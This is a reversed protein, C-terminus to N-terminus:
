AKRRWWGLCEKAYCHHTAVAAKNELDMTSEKQQDEMAQVKTTDPHNFIAHHCEIHIEYVDKHRIWWPFLNHFNRIREWCNMQRFKTRQLPSKNWWTIFSNTTLIYFEHLYKQNICEFLCRSSKAGLFTPFNVISGSYIM